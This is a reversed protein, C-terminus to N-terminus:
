PLVEILGKAVGRRDTGFITEVYYDFADQMVMEFQIFPLGEQLEHDASHDSPYTDEILLVCDVDNPEDVDTVFSGDIVIRLVGSRRALDVFWRLSETEVRRLDSSQGFREAIEDWTAIHVGPPLYGLENFAPIM